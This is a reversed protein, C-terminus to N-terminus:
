NIILFPSALSPAISHIPFLTQPSHLSSKLSPIRIPLFLLTQLAMLVYRPESAGIQSRPLHAAGPFYRSNPTTAVSSASSMPM